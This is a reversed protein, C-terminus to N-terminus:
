FLITHELFLLTTTYDQPTPLSRPARISPHLQNSQVPYGYAALWLLKHLCSGASIFRAEVSGTGSSPNDPM